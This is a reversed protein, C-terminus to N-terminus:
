WSIGTHRPIFTTEGKERRDFNDLYVSLSLAHLGHMTPYREKIADALLTCAVISGARIAIEFAVEDEYSSLCCDQRRRVIGCQILANISRVGPAGAIKDLDGVTVGNYGSLKTDDFRRCFDFLLRRISNFFPLESVHDSQSSSQSHVTVIHRDDLHPFVESLARMVQLLNPTECNGPLYDFLLSSISRYGRRELELGGQMLVKSLLEALALLGGPKEM